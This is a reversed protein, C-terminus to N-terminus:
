QVVAQPRRMGLLLPWQIKLILLTNGSSLGYKQETVRQM